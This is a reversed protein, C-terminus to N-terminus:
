PRPTRAIVVTSRGLSRALRAEDSEQIGVLLDTSTKDRSVSYVTVDEFVEGSGPATESQATPTLLLDVRDGVRVDSPIPPESNDVTVVSLVVGKPPAPSVNNEQLTGGQKVPSLILKGVAGPLEHVADEAVSAVVKKTTVDSASVVTFAAIDHTAVVVEKKSTGEQHRMWVTGALGLVTVLLGAVLSLSVHRRPIEFNGTEAKEPEPEPEPEAPGAILAAVFILFGIGLTHRLRSVM